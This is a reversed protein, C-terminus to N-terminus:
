ELHAELVSLLCEVRDGTVEAHSFDCQALIVLAERPDSEVVLERELYPRPVLAKPGVANVSRGRILSQPRVDFEELFGAEIERAFMYLDFRVAPIVPAILQSQQNPLIHGAAVVGCGISPAIKFAFQQAHNLVQLIM